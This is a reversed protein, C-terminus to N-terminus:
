LSSTLEEFAGFGEKASRHAMGVGVAAVALACVVVPYWLSIWLIEPYPRLKKGKWTRAKVDWHVIKM